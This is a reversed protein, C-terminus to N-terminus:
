RARSSLCVCVKGCGRVEDLLWSLRGRSGRRGSVGGRVVM